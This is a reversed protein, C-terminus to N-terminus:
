RDALVSTQLAANKAAQMSDYAKVLRNNPYLKRRQLAKQVADYTVGYANAIKKLDTQTRSM